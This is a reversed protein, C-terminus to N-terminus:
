SFVKREKPYFLAFLCSFGVVLIVGIPNYWLYAIKSVVGIPQIGLYSTIKDASFLSLIIAESIIAAIFVARGKVFKFFFAVIFVGLITGYFLSGIINVAQVLNDFLPASVAFGITIGGWILTSVKSANVYHKDSGNKNISPIQLTIEHIKNRIQGMTYKPLTILNSNSDDCFISVCEKLLGQQEAIALLEFVYNVHLFQPSYCDAFFEKIPSLCTTETNKLPEIVKYMNQLTASIYIAEDRYSDPSAIINNNEICIFITPVHKREITHVFREGQTGNDVKRASLSYYNGDSILAIHPPTEHVAVLVLWLGSYLKEINQLSTARLSFSHDDQEFIM